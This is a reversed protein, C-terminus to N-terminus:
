RMGIIRHCQPVIRVDELRAAAVGYLEELLGPGIAACGEVPTAPQIVIPTRGDHRAVLDVAREFEGRDLGDAVVIKCFLERGATLPMIEEYVAPLDGGGCLSPLKIDLSIIDVLPFISRAADPHLGNTELYLPAGLTRCLPLFSTLFDPQELPEGGTVSISHLGRVGEVLGRAIEVLDGAAVPNSVTRDAVTFSAPRTRADVTDCYRCRLGCGALRVFLQLRGVHIGEGQFSLFVESIFGVENM